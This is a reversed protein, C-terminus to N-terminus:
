VSDLEPTQDLEPRYGCSFPTTIYKTPLRKDARHLEREVEEIAKKTYNTSSMAWRTKTPKDSNELNVKEIDAGLYLDPEKVSGKKLEFLRGISDFMHKTNVSQGCLDDVYALLYEYYKEGDPKVAPRMWLDPDAKMPVYGLTRLNKGLFSRFAAGAVPLGYLARVVKAYRGEDAGFEPGLRVYYKEKIPATLYANKIDAAMIDLDNLAAILFFLRITDRSPVSLYTNERPQEEVRQGDAVLRAKRDLTIKIDFIWHYGLLEYGIPAGGDLKEFAPSVGILEKEFAKRWFDTGTKRDIALAEAISKPMECGYKHTRKWYRTKAKCILWDRRRLADRAWWAFAPEEIIQNHM